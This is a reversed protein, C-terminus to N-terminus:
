KSLHIPKSELFTPISATRLVESLRKASPQCSSPETVDSGGDQSVPVLRKPRDIPMSVPGGTM